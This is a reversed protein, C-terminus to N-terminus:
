TDLRLLLWQLLMTENVNRSLRTGAEDIAAMAALTTRLRPLSIDPAVLRERYVSLLADLGALLEDTRVRRLERKHRAEVADRGSVTKDGRREAEEKLAGLEEAQRARVM